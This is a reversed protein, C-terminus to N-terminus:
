KKEEETKCPAGRYTKYKGRKTSMRTPAEEMWARTEDVDSEDATKQVRIKVM